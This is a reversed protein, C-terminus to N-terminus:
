DNPEGESEETEDEMVMQLAIRDQESLHTADGIAISMSIADPTFM